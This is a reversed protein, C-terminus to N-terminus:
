SLPKYSKKETTSHDVADDDPVRSQLDHRVCHVDQNFSKVVKRVIQRLVHYNYYVFRQTRAKQDLRYIQWTESILLSVTDPSFCTFFMCLDSYVTIADWSYVAFLFQCNTWPQQWYVTFSVLWRRHFDLLVAPSLGNHFQLCYTLLVKKSNLVVGLKADWHYPWSKAPM